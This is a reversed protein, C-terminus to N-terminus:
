ARTRPLRAALHHLFDPRRKLLGLVPACRQGLGTVGARLNDVGEIRSAFGYLDDLLVSIEAELVLERQDAILPNIVFRQPRRKTIEHDARAVDSHM